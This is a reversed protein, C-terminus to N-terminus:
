ELYNRLKRVDKVEGILVVNDGPKIVYDASPSVELKGQRSVAIVQVGFRNSLKLDQLRGCLKDRARFEIVEYHDGLNFADVISPTALNKALRVGMDHEPRVVEDAGVKLMVRATTETTAKSIVHAAGRSKAAVITLISAELNTGIAVIVEDFTNLGLQALAEEDTADLVVAHTVRDMIVDIALEDRDAVVVEHGLDYLSTAVASGFRGAGIILFQRIKM